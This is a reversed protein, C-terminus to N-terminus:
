RANLFLFLGLVFLGVGCLISLLTHIYLAYRNLRQVRQIGSDLGRRLLIAGIGFSTNTVAMGVGIAGAGLLATGPLGNLLCFFVVLAVAPCPVVGTIFALWLLEKWSASPPAAESTESQRSFERFSVILLIVGTLAILAYSAKEIHIRSSEFVPFLTAKAIAYLIFLLIVASASHILTISTGLCVGQPIKGRRALFYGAVITKGHGPGVAHIVGYVFCIFLFLGLSSAKGGKLNSVQVSIKERLNKQSSVLWEWMTDTGIFFYSSNTKVDSSTEVNQPSPREPAAIEEAAKGASPKKFDFRKQSVDGLACSAACLLTLVWLTLFKHLKKSDSM